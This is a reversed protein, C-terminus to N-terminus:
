EVTFPGQLYEEVDKVTLLVAYDDNHKKLLTDQRILNEEM